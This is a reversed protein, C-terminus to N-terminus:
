YDCISPATDSVLIGNEDIRGGVTRESVEAFVKRTTEPGAASAVGDHPVLSIPILRIQEIADEVTVEIVASRSRRFGGNQFALNGTSWLVAAGDIMEVGQLQHPHSISIVDAGLRIWATIIERQRATPCDTLEWGSHLMVVTLDAEAEAQVIAGLSALWFRDCAWAVGTRRATPSDAWGCPLTTLSVVGVVRGQSEVFVPEYAESDTAGAGTGVLASEDILRRTSAAGRPGYDWTHNNALGLVDIGSAVIQDIAAPPSLFNFQKAIPPPGVESRVGVVTELNAFMLDPASLIETVGFLMGWPVQYDLIQLDGGFGLVLPPLPRECTPSHNNIRTRPSNNYRYLFTILQARTLKDDPSFTRPSTGTTIRTATLWSVPDQQWPTTVDTFQHPGAAPERALRHLLAAAQARTLTEGPSFTTESTGTTIGTQAMWSIADNQSEDDIDNFSHPSAEPQDVMNWLYVAAEGRTAPKHPEFCADDIGTIDNDVSWQVAEAYYSTRRVDGFGAVAASPSPRLVPSAVALVLLLGCVGVARIHNL